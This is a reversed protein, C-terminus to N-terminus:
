EDCLRLVHAVLLEAILPQLRQEFFVDVAAGRQDAILDRVGDIREDILRRLLIVLRQHDHPARSAFKMRLAAFSRWIRLRRM